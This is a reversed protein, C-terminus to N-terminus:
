GGDISGHKLLVLGIVQHTVVGFLNQPKVSQVRYTFGMVQVRDEVILDVDPLVHAEADIGNNLDIAPAPHWELPFTGLNEFVQHDSGYLRSGTGRFHVGFQGSGLILDRVDARVSQREAESLM